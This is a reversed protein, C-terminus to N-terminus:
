KIGYKKNWWYARREEILMTSETTLFNEDFNHYVEVEIQECYEAEKEKTAPLFVPFSIKKTEIGARLLQEKNM